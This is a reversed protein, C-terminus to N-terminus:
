AFDGFPFVMLDGSPTCPLHTLREVLSFVMSLHSIVSRPQYYCGLLGSEESEMAKEYWALKIDWGHGDNACGPSESGV